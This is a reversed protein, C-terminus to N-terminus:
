NQGVPPVPRPGGANDRSLNYLGTSQAEGTAGTTEGFILTQDQQRGTFQTSAVGTRPSRLIINQMYGNSGWSDRIEFIMAEGSFFGVGQIDVIQGPALFPVGPHVVANMTTRLNEWLNVSDSFDSILFGADSPPAVTGVTARTSQSGYGSAAPSQPDGHGAFSNSVPTYRGTLGKDNLEGLITKGQKTIMGTTKVAPDIGDMNINVSNLWIDGPYRYALVYPRDTDENILRKGQLPEIVLEAIFPSDPKNEIPQISMLGASTYAMIRELFAFDSENSGKWTSPIPTNAVTSDIKSTLEPYDSLVRDVLQKLTQNPQNFSRAPFNGSLKASSDEAEIVATLEGNGAFVFSSSKIHYIGLLRSPYGQYGVSIEVITNLSILNTLQYDLNAFSLTAKNKIKRGKASKKTGITRDISRTLNVSLLFDRLGWEDLTRGNLAIDITPVLTNM